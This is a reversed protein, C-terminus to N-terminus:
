EELGKSCFWLTDSMELKFGRSELTERLQPDDGLQTSVCVTQLSDFGRVAVVQEVFRPVIRDGSLFMDRIAPWPTTDHSWVGAGVRDGDGLLSLGFFRLDHCSQAVARLVGDNMYEVESLNLIQLRRARSVLLELALALKSAEEQGVSRYPTKEISLHTLRDCANAALNTLLADIGPSELGSLTVRTLNHLGTLITNATKGECCSLSVEQINTCNGLVVQTMADPEYEVKLSSLSTKISQVLGALHADVVPIDIKRERYPFSLELDRINICHKRLHLFFRERDVMRKPTGRPAEEVALKLRTPRTLKLVQFQAAHDQPAFAMFTKRYEDLKDYSDAIFDEVWINLTAFNRCYPLGLKSANHLLEAFRQLQSGYHAIKYCRFLDDFPETLNRDPIMARAVMYWETCVMSASMLDFAVELDQLSGDIHQTLDFWSLIERIVEPPLRPSRCDPKSPTQEVNKTLAPYHRKM